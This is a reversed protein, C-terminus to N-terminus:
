IRICFTNRELKSGIRLYSQLNEYSACVNREDFFNPVLKKVNGFPINYFCSIM